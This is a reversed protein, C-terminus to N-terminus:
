FMDGDRPGEAAGSAQAAAEAAPTTAAAAQAPEQAPEQATETATVTTADGARETEAPVPAQGSPQTEGSPAASQATDAPPTKPTEKPKEAPKRAATKPEPKAGEVVPADKAGAPNTPFEDAITTQNDKIATFVGRLTQIEAPQTSDLKHGLRAELMETTVGIGLAYAAMQRILDALPTEADKRARTRRVEQEFDDVLWSPLLALIRARMRRAGMNAGTEYIDRQDTLQKSGSSTDRIHNVTFNQITRVNSELDHAFAQYESSGAHQSLELMGYTFNGWLRALEEAARISLGEVAQGGRKYSYLGQGALSPRKAAQMAKAYAADEDRPFRQAVVMAAQAEAIARESEVAIAGQAAGAGLARRAEFLHQGVGMAPRPAVGSPGTTTVERSQDESM